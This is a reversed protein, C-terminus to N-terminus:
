GVSVGVGALVVVSGVGGVREGGQHEAGQGERGAGARHLVVGAASCPVQGMGSM